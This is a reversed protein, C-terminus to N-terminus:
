SLVHKTVLKVHVVQGSMVNLCFQATMVVFKLMEPLQM